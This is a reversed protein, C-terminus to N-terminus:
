QKRLPHPHKQIEMFDISLTEAKAVSAVGMVAFVAILINTKKMIEKDGLSQIQVVM